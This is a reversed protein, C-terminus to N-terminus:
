RQDDENGGAARGVDACAKDTLRQRLPKTLRDDDVVPRASAAIQGQLGARAGRRVAVSEQKDGDRV